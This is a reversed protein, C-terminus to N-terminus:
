RTERQQQSRPSKDGVPLPLDRDINQEDWTELLEENKEDVKVLKTDANLSVEFDQSRLAEREQTM